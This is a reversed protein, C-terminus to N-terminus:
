WVATSSGSRSDPRAAHSKLPPQLTVDELSLSSSAPISAALSARDASNQSLLDLVSIGPPLPLVRGGDIVAGFETGHHAVTAIRM